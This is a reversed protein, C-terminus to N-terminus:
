LNEKGRRSTKGPSEPAEDAYDYKARDPDKKYESVSSQAFSKALKELDAQEVETLEGGRKIRQLWVDHQDAFPETGFNMFARSAPGGPDSRSYFDLTGNVEEVKISLLTAVLQTDDSTLQPFRDQYLKRKPSGQASSSSSSSSAKKGAKPMTRVSPNDLGKVDGSKEGFSTVHRIGGSFNATQRLITTHM